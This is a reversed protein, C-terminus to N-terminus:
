LDLIVVTIVILTMLGSLLLTNISTIVVSQSRCGRTGLLFSHSYHGFFLVFLLLLVM